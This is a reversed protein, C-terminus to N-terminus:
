LTVDVVEFVVKYVGDLLSYYIIIAYNMYVRKAQRSKNMPITLLNNIM